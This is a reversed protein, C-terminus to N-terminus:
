DNHTQMLQEWFDWDALQLPNNESQNPHESLDDSNSGARKNSDTADSIEKGSQREGCVRSNLALDARTSREFHIRVRVQAIFEPETVGRSVAYIDWASLTLRRLSAQLAQGSQLLEPHNVYITSMDSWISAKEENSLLSPRQLSTLILILSDWSGWLFFSRMFWSFKKLGPNSFAATDTALISQAFKLLEKRDMTTASNARIKPLRVRIRMATIASRTFAMTLFHLPEIINSYRIFTEEVFVETRDIMADLQQLIDDSHLKTAKQQSSTTSQWINALRQGTACRALFFMMESPGTLTLPAEVMGPWIQSDNINSPIKTDWSDPMMSIGTRSVRGAVGDLPVLQYFLRRRMELDFPSLVLTQEERHLGMRQAIRIAVGTLIWFTQPDLLFRGPVLFLILAQLVATETTKLFEANVLAQRAAFNYKHQLVSRSQGISSLCENETLSFIAFHYICFLLCEQAETAIMQRRWISEFDVQITPIHLIKVLPEVNTLYVQWLSRAQAESPHYELLGQRYGLFASSLPDVNYLISDEDYQLSEDEEMVQRMDEEGLTPWILNDDVYRFNGRSHFLRGSNALSAKVTAPKVAEEEHLRDIESPSSFISPLLGNARLIAEYEALRIEVDDGDKRKRRRPLPAQYVCDTEGKSCRSCSPLLRDCKVKRTACNQCTYPM